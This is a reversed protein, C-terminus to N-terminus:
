IVCAECDEEDIIESPLNIVGLVGDDVYGEHIIQEFFVEGEVLLQRFYQWGKNKLDYYEVYKHFEDDLVSKEDVTLDINKLHLKTSYGTDDPNITEDCIEDLADAVESYAAMIRYDRLRGAKDDQVNAYM